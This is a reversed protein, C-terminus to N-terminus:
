KPCPQLTFEFKDGICRTEEISRRVTQEIKCRQDKEKGSFLYHVVQVEPASYGDFSDTEITIRNLTVIM